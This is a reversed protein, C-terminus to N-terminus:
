DTVGSEPEFGVKSWFGKAEPYCKLSIKNAGIRKARKVIEWFMFKGKGEQRFDRHIMFRHIHVTDDKKSAVCFGISRGNRSIQFSLEKKMPLYMLFNEKTWKGRLFDKEIDLLDKLM